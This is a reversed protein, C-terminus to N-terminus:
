ERGQGFGRGHMSFFSRVKSKQEPTLTNFADVRYGTARDEIQDRVKRMDNRLSLIKDKDPSPQMWLLRIDGRKSFVQDQLPKIDKMFSLRLAEIASKQESTLDLNGFLGHVGGEQHHRIAADRMHGKM